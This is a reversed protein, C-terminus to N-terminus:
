KWSNVFSAVAAICNADTIANGTSQVNAHSLFWRYEKGADADYDTFIKQAWALRGADIPAAEALINWAVQLRAARFKTYLLPNGVAFGDIVALTAM